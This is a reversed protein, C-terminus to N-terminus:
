ARCTHEYNNFPFLEATDKCYHRERNGKAINKGALLVRVNGITYGLETQIRDLHLSTTSVGRKAIYDDIGELTLMYEMTLDFPVQKETSRWRLDALIKPLTNNARWRRMKCKSCTRDRHAIASRSLIGRCYKVDCRGRMHKLKKRLVAKDNQWILSTPTKM